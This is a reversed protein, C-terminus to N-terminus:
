VMNVQIANLVANMLTYLTEEAVSYDSNMVFDKSREKLQLIINLVEDYVETAIVSRAEQISKLIKDTINSHFKESDSQWQYFIDEEIITSKDLTLLYEMTSTTHAYLILLNRFLGAIKLIAYDSLDQDVYDTRASELEGSELPELYHLFDDLKKCYVLNKIQIRVGGYVGDNRGKILIKLNEAFEELLIMELSIVEIEGFRERFKNYLDVIFQDFMEVYLSVVITKEELSVNEPAHEDMVGKFFNNVRERFYKIENKSLYTISSEKRIKNRFLFRWVAVLLLLTQYEEQININDDNFKDLKAYENQLNSLSSVSSTLNVLSLHAQHSVEECKYKSLLLSNSQFVFNTFSSVYDRVYYTIDKEKDNSPDKLIKPLIVKNNSFTLGYKDNECKPTRYIKASIKMISKKLKEYENSSFYRMNGGKKFIDNVGHICYEAFNLIERRDADVGLMFENWDNNRSEFESIQTIWGNLQTIWVLPINKAPINKETDPVKLGKILDTGLAKVCYKEKNIFLRRLAAVLAMVHSYINYSEDSEEFINQIFEARVYSETEEFILIRYRDVLVPIVTESIERYEFNYDQSQIGVLFDLLREISHNRIGQMIPSFDINQLRIGRKASWFLVFGILSIDDVDDVRLIEIKCKANELFIDTYMYDIKKMTMNNLIEYYKESVAPNTNSFLEILQSPDYDLYGTIDGLFMTFSGNFFKNGEKIWKKNEHYYRYTDYWLLGSMISSYVNWNLNNLSKVNEILSKANNNRYLYDVVMSQCFENVVDLSYCLVEEEDLNAVDCLIKYLLKARIVHLSELYKNDTSIRVLYENQFEKIMKRAQPIYFVKLMKKYNISLNNMGCYSIVQLVDLWNDANSENSLIRNIQSRLKNELTDSENLLYMFEMFPGGDGFKMWANEFTLFYPSDYKSYVEKAEDIGFGIDIIKPKLGNLDIDSRNFDEERITILLRINSGRKRIEEAIWRWEKDYSGVDIYVVVNGSRNISLGHLASVIDLAQHENVIREVVFVYDEIYNDYLYRYALSSKGQGSAGKLITINNELYSDSIKDLWDPRIIDLNNRIHEPHANVGALYEAKLDEPSLLSKYESLKIITRGYQNCIGKIAVVDKVVDDIKKNWLVKSTYGSYRSLESVYSILTDFAINPATMTEIRTDLRDYIEKRLEEEIVYEIRLRSFIWDIEKITYNMNILKNRINAIHKDNKNVFGSLEEGVSGFSIVLLKLEESESKYNLARRFFSDEKQPSLNSLTLDNSLNKIQVLESIKGDKKVMLDEIKEPFFESEDDLLMLRNAIYTTQSSFGKWAAKAGIDSKLLDM